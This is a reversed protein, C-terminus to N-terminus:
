NKYDIAKFILFKRLPKGSKSNIIIPELEEVNSFYKMLDKRETGSKELNKFRKESDIFIADKGELHSLDKDVISFQLGGYGIVNGSYVKEDLYYNMVASTKYGDNSFIFTDTHEKKVDKIKESLEEWGYWTDDSKVNVPYFAVQVFFLINVVIATILQPKIYKKKIFPAALIVATVYGPMMWNLKVWYVLSILSFFLLIPVSFSLLFLKKDSPLAKKKITQGGYKFIVKYVFYFLVPLLLGLQTGLNGFFYKPKLGFKSVSGSRGSTQFSFSIWDHQENWYYIPYITIGFFILFLLIEKSFLYRRYNKSVLLFFILGAVIIAATYKSDFSMGALIGGLIWYILKGEFVAKYLAIITLTWFLILPVDPTTNISLVTLLLTSGYMISAVNAKDKSLFLKALYHFFYLSGMTVIFNTMKIAWVSTGLISTFLKLMYAVMPPHDFYSWDLNESYFFYYADQPMLGMTLAVILRLAIISAFLILINRTKLMKLLDCKLSRIYLAKPKLM